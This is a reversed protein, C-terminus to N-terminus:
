RKRTFTRLSLRRDGIQGKRFTGTSGFLEDQITRLRREQLSVGLFSHIRRIAEGQRSSDDCGNAGVLDEFRVIM